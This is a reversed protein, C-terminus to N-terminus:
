PFILHTFFHICQPIHKGMDFRSPNDFNQLKGFVKSNVDWLSFCAYFMSQFDSLYAIMHKFGFPTNIAKLSPLYLDFM